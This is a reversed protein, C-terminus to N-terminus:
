QRASGSRALAEIESALAALARGRHSIRNKEDAPLEAMSVAHGAPRFVPDYGFGGSGSPARLLSGQCVGKRSTTRGDPHALAVWCVFAAGRDAADGVESLLKELRGRDDLGPGGYRASQPGPAGDLAAVELGSDDALAPLGTAAAVRGAKRRANEEYDMGEDPMEVGPFDALGVLELNHGTLLARFEVLKGANGSALVLRAAPGRSM